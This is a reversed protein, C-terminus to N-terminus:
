GMLDDTWAEILKLEKPDIFGLSILKEYCLYLNENINQFGPKLSIKSLEECIKQNNLYGPIEDSFDKMLDHTNREQKVTAGHFLIGWNNTWAIRQAVFSRWIDTMRFSCYSPLYLLPYAEPFWTTNQSNFPCWSEKSLVVDIQTNFITAQEPFVLRYVADVDPNNDALGQQIPCSITQKKQLKLDPPQDKLYSLPLGRPWILNDSFYKYVNVWGAAKLIPATIVKERAKWFNEYPLNDDDTEIIVSAKEKIALLYGINKRAYHKTPCLKSLKFNTNFQSQLSYFRCGEIHFNKPSAEDGIVIYQHGREQCSNALSILIHNPVSVSTVILYLNKNM